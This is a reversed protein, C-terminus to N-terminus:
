LYNSNEFYYYVEEQEYGRSSAFRMLKGKLDYQNKAKVTSRKKELESRIMEKYKEEDIKEMAKEIISEGIDKARLMTRIKVRGWKNFMIKDRVYSSAFRPEDIFKGAILESIIKKNEEGSTCGWSVLKTNIESICKESRSCLAMAREKAKNYDSKMKKQGM